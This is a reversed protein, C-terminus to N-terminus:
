GGTASKVSEVFAQWDAESTTSRIEEEQQWLGQLWDVIADIDVDISEQESFVVSTEAALGGEVAMVAAAEGGGAMGMSMMGGGGGAQIMFDIESALPTTWCAQELWDAVFENLDCLNIVNDVVLDCNANWNGDNPDSMWAAALVACDKFTVRGAEFEQENYLDAPNSGSSCYEDAGMDVVVIGDDNGDARRQQHDIDSEGFYPGYTNDPDGADKCPSNYALHYDFAGVDHFQPNCGIINGSSGSRCNNPDELCSYTASCGALNNASPHGWIICNTIVPQPGSVRKVGVVSNNAITNNRIVASGAQELELRIGEANGYIWNNRIAPAAGHVCLIGWINNTIKNHQIVTPGGATYVGPGNADQIVFGDLVSDVMATDAGVRVVYDTNHPSDQGSLITENALWNREYRHQESGAFGGYVSMSAPVVFAANPDTGVATRYYTGDAVWVEDCPWAAALADSLSAFAQQWSSGDGPVGVNKDVHIVEGGCSCDCINTGIELPKEYHQPGM